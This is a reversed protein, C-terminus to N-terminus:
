DASGRKAANLLRRAEEVESQAVRQSTAVKGLYRIAKGRDQGRRFYYKAIELYSGDDGLKVAKQFWSVARKLQQEDRYITGINAAASADGRRYALRYWYLAATRDRKVGLGKDYFYGLNVQAGRDSARAAALFLRFASKVNGADWASDAQRFLDSARATPTRKKTVNSV